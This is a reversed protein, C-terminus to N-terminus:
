SGYPSCLMMPKRSFKRQLKCQNMTASATTCGYRWSDRCRCASRRARPVPPRKRLVLLRAAPSGARRPLVQLCCASSSLAARPSCPRRRPRCPSIAWRPSRSLTHCRRHPALLGRRLPRPKRRCCILLSKTGTFVALQNSEHEVLSYSNM